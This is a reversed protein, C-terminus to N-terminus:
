NGTRILFDNVKEKVEEKCSGVKSYFCVGRDCGGGTLGATTVELSSPAIVANVARFTQVDDAASISIPVNRHLYTYGGAQFWPIDHLDVGCLDPKSGAREMQVMASAAVGRFAYSPWCIISCAVMSTMGCAIIPKSGVRVDCFHAVARILEVLGLAALIIIYPAIPYLFREEKHAIGSLIIFELICSAALTPAKRIGFLVAVVLLGYRSILLSIYWNWPATGFRESGGLLINLTFYKWYSQFPMGLSVWDVLGFLTIPLILAVGLAYSRRLPLKMLVVCTMIIIMPALQVRLAVATGCCLGGMLQRRSRTQSSLLLYSGPLLFNLAVVETLSHSAYIVLQHWVATGFAAITAAERGGSRMAWTFSAWVLSLSGISLLVKIVTLYLASSDHICTCFKMVIAFAGPLIWSRIGERWEWSIIGYGFALRHAPELQQFIEDPHILTVGRSAILRLVLALCLICALVVHKQRRLSWRAKDHGSIKYTAALLDFEEISSLDRM